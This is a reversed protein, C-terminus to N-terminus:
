FFHMLIKCERDKFGLNANPLSIKSNNMANVCSSELEVNKAKLSELEFNSNYVSVKLDKIQTSSVISAKASKLEARKSLEISKKLAAIELVLNANTKKMNITNLSANENMQAICDQETKKAIAEMQLSAIAQNLKINEIDKKANLADGKNIKSLLDKVLAEHETQNIANSAWASQISKQNKRIVCENLNLDSNKSSSEVTM